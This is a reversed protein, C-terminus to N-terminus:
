SGHTPDAARYTLLSILCSPSLRVLGSTYLVTRVYDFNKVHKIMKDDGHKMHFTPPHYFLAWCILALTNVAILIYYCGRWGMGPHYQIFANAVLPAVGSGPITFCYCVPNGALRHKM